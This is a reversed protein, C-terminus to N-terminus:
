KHKRANEEKEKQSTDWASRSSRGEAEWTSPNWRPSLRDGLNKSIFPHHQSSPASGYCSSVSKLSTPLSPPPYTLAILENGRTYIKISIIILIQSFPLHSPEASLQVQWVLRIVQTQDEYGITSPLAPEWSGLLHGTRSGQNGRSGYSPMAM